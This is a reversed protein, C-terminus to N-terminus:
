KEGHSVIARQGYVLICLLVFLRIHTYMDIYKPKNWSVKSKKEKKEVHLPQKKKFQIKTSKHIDVLLM